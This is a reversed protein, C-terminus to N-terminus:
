NWDSVVRTEGFAPRHPLLSTAMGLVATMLKNDCYINYFTNKHHDLNTGRLQSQKGLVGKRAKGDILIMYSNELKVDQVINCLIKPYVVPPFWFNGFAAM